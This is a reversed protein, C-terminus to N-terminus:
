HSQSFITKKEFIFIHNIYPWQFHIFIQFWTKLLKCIKLPIEKLPMQFSLVDFSLQVNKTFIAFNTNSFGQQLIKKTWFTLKNRDNDHNPRGHSNRFFRMLSKGSLNVWRSIFERVNIFLIITIKEDCQIIIILILYHAIECTCILWRLRAVARSSHFRRSRFDIKLSFGHNQRSFIWLWILRHYNTNNNIFTIVRTNHQKADRGWKM